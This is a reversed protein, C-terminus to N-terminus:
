RGTTSSVARVSLSVSLPTLHFYSFCSTRNSNKMLKMKRPSRSEKTCIIPTRNIRFATRDTLQIRPPSFNCMGRRVSTTPVAMPRRAVVVWATEITMILGDSPSYGNIQAFQQLFLGIIVPMFTVQAVQRAVELPAVRKTVFEFLSYFMALILPTIVVALLALTLQLSASYTPDGGAMESRKTTLPAGPAAALVALGTAVAPPLDFVWLLLVVVVPVLVVVALLSRLLLEPRRWLSTLEQFSHNVGIALMLSFITLSVFNFLIPNDM